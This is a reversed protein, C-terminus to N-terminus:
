KSTYNDDDLILTQLRHEDQYTLWGLRMRELLGKFHQQDERKRVVQEIEMGQEALNIFQLAGQSHTM